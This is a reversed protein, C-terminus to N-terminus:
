VNSKDKLFEKLMQFEEAMDGDKLKNGKYDFMRLVNEDIKMHNKLDDIFSSDGWGHHLIQGIGIANCQVQLNTLIKAVKENDTPWNEGDSFYFLYINWSSTKFVNKIKDQVMEFASSCRTGGGYRMKYFKDQDIEHAETDHGIYVSETREYFQKIWCELWWATNMVVDCKRNDMSGSWDRAFFIVANSEPIRKTKWSRYRKDDKIPLIVPDEPDYEGTQMMRIMANKMTKRTHRLSEPGNKTLSTYVTKEKFIESSDKPKLNPLCLEDKLMELIFKLDIGVPITDGPTDGPKNGKGKGKKPDKGVIDGIDGEGRGWGRKNRGFRFDPLDISPINIAIKGGRPRKGVLKGNRIFRKIGDKIKGGVVDRFEKHDERIRRTSM